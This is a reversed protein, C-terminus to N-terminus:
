KSLYCSTRLIEALEFGFAKIENRDPKFESRFEAIKATPPQDMPVLQCGELFNAVRECADLLESTSTQQYNLFDNTSDNLAAYLQSLAAEAQKERNANSREITDADRNRYFGMMASIIAPDRVTGDPYFIGHSDAFYGNITLGYVMWPIDKKDLVEIVVDYPNGRCTCGTETNIVPKGCAKSVKLAQEANAELAKRTSSYDHYSLVDVLDATQELEWASTHGVTILTDPDLEKVYAAYKRAFEFNRKLWYERAAVNSASTVLPSCGPENMVDYMLLGPLNKVADIIARAYSQNRETAQDTLVSFNETTLGNGNFLIVVTYYGQGYAAQIFNCVQQPYGSPNKAYEDQSLWIRVCNLNVRKGYGLDRVWEWGSKGYWEYNVGRIWSCDASAAEEACASPALLLCLSVIIAWLVAKRM